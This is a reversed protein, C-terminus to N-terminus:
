CVIDFRSQLESTHEESRDNLLDTWSKPRPLKKPNYGIGVVQAAVTVGWDDVMGAPLRGVNKLRRAEFKEFLGRDIGTVRPGPDLDSSRRTPFPPLAHHHL